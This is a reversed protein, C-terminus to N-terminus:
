RGDDDDSGVRRKDYPAYKPLPRFSYTVLVTGHVHCSPPPTYKNANNSAITFLQISFQKILFGTSLRRYFLKLSTVTDVCSPSRQRGLSDYGVNSEKSEVPSVLESVGRFKLVEGIVGERGKPRIVPVFEVGAAVSGILTRNVNATVFTVGRRM